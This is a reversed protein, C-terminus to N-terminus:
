KTVESVVLVFGYFYKTVIENPATGSFLELDWRYPALGPLFLKLDAATLAQLDAIQGAKDPTINPVLTATNASSLTIQVKGPNVITCTLTAAPTTDTFTNRIQARAAMGTLDIPDSLAVSGKSLAASTAIVSLTRDGAVANASLTVVTTGFTLTANSSVSYQLPEINLTVAGLAADATIVTKNRLVFTIPGLTSGQDINLNFSEASSM